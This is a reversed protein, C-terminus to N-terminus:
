CKVIKVAKFKKGYHKNFEVLVTRADNRYIPIYTLCELEKDICYVKCM